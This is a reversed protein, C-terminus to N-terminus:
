KKPKFAEVPVAKEFAQKEDACKKVDLRCAFFPPSCFAFLNAPSVNRHTRAASFHTRFAQFTHGKSVHLLGPM